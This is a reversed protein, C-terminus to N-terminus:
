TGYQKATLSHVSTQKRSNEKATGESGPQSKSEEVTQLEAYGSLTGVAETSAVWCKELGPYFLLSDRSM